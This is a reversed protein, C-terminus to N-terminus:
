VFCSIPSFINIFSKVEYTHWKLKISLFSINKNYKITSYFWHFLLAVSTRATACFHCYFVSRLETIAKIQSTIKARSAMYLFCGDYRAPYDSLPIKWLIDGLIHKSVWKAYYVCCYSQICIKLYGTDHKANAKSSFINNSGRNLM